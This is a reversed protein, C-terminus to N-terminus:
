VFPSRSIHTSLSEADLDVSAVDFAGYSLIITNHEAERLSLLKGALAESLYYRRRHLSIYGKCNVKRLVAGGPYEPETLTDPLHRSSPRYRAVPCAMDLAEHPREHNYAWRWPDFAAQADALDRMPRRSLLEAKMTRHFREEKGQTQPHLMRGHIPLIDLMMMQVEFRTIGGKSDSWPKGHDCLIEQPLGCEALVGCFVPYFYEYRINPCAQVCLSYRSYDDLITLPYCLEGNLMRFEGKFDMQWLSNPRSREFREWARHKEAEAPEICGGRRLINGITSKSPLGTYGRNELYHELKRPGWAPHEERCALVLAEMEASTRNGVKHPARSRDELSEGSRAREMWKYGTKRSIGYRRCVAAVSEEGSLVAAAFEERLSMKSSEKWPM